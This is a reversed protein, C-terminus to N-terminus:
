RLQTTKMKRPYLPLPTHRYSLYQHLHRKPSSLSLFAPNQFALIGQVVSEIELWVDQVVTPHLRHIFASLTLDNHLSKRETQRQCM